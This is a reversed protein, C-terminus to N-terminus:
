LCACALWLKLVHPLGCCWGHDASSSVKLCQKVNFVSKESGFNVFLYDTKFGLLKIKVSFNEDHKTFTHNLTFQGHKMGPM